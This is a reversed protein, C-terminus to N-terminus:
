FSNQFKSSVERCRLNQKYDELPIADCGLLSPMMQGVTDIIKDCIWEQPKANLSTSPEVENDVENVNVNLLM